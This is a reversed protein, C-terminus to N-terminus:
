MEFSSFMICGKLFDLQIIIIWLENINKPFLNTTLIRVGHSLPNNNQYCVNFESNGHPRSCRDTDAMETCTPDLFDVRSFCICLLYRIISVLQTIFKLMFFMALNVYRLSSCFPFYFCQGHKQPYSLIHFELFNEKSETYVYSKNSGGDSPLPPDNRVDQWYCHQNSFFLVLPLFCIFIISWFHVFLNYM